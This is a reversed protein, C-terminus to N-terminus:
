EIVVLKHNAPVTEGEAVLIKSVKGAKPSKLENQMKMAEVVLLSQGAAVEAGVAVLLTIIKGPMQARMEVSGSESNSRQKEPRDRADGVTMFTRGGAVATEYQGERPSLYVTFSQTGLLISYIGPAVPTISTVGSATVPGAVAYNSSAGSRDLSLDFAIEGVDVRLKM